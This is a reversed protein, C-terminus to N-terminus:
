SWTVDISTDFVEDVSSYVDEKAVSDAIEIAEDAQITLEEDLEITKEVITKIAGVKTGTLEEVIFVETLIGDITVDIKPLMEIKSETLVGISIGKIPGIGIKVILGVIEVM